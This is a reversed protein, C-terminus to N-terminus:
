APVQPDKERAFSATEPARSTSGSRRQIRAVMARYALAALTILVVAVVMLLLLQLFLHNMVQELTGAADQTARRVAPLTGNVSQALASLDRTTMSLERILQTYDRIDFPPGKGTADAAGSKAAYRATIRDLTELTAHLSNSTETGAELMSRLEGSMSSVMERRADLEQMLQSVLAQRERAIIEPFSGALRDAASGVLSARDLDELLAKTEPMVALRYTLKEIEMDLLAPMRQMYYITREALERTQAIERVAPDLSAFPDLGLKSFLSGSTREEGPRPAGVSKAFDAFHIYAVFRVDPHQKRWEVIVENLRAKEADTLLGDLLKWARQELSRHEDLVWQAHEGDAAKIWVDEIVLRSLSALVVMDLVNVLPNPGSAITYAAESQQVKWAQATLRQEPRKEAAQFRSGVEQVRGAYEDAFRMVKLQTERLEEAREEAAKHSPMMQAITSCGGGLCIAATLLVIRTGIITGSHPSPNLPLAPM